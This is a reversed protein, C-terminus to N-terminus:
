SLRSPVPEAQEQVALINCLSGASALSYILMLIVWGKAFGKLSEKESTNDKEAM